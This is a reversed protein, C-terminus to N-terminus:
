FGILGVLVGERGGLGEWDRGKRKEIPSEGIETQGPRSKWPLAETPNNKNLRRKWLFSLKENGHRSVLVM